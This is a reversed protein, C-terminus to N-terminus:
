QGIGPLTELVHFLRSAALRLRQCSRRKQADQPPGYASPADKWQLSHRIVLIIGSIVRRDDVRRLGRSRPFLPLLRRMQAQSLLPHDSM